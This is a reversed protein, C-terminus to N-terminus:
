AYVYGCNMCLQRADAGISSAVKPAQERCHPCATTSAGAPRSVGAAELSARTVAGDGLLSLAAAIQRQASELLARAQEIESM